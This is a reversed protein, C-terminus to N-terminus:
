PGRLEILAREAAARDLATERAAMFHDFLEVVILLEQGRDSYAPCERPLLYEGSTGDDGNAILRETGIIERALESDLVIRLARFFPDDAPDFPNRDALRGLTLAVEGFRPEVLGPGLDTAASALKRGLRITNLALDELGPRFVTSTKM